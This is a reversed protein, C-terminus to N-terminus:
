PNLDIWEIDVDRGKGLTYSVRVTPVRRIRVWWYMFLVGVVVGLVLAARSLWKM